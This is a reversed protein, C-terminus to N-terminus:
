ISNSDATLPLRLENIILGMDALVCKIPIPNVQTFLSKYFPLQQLYMKRAASPKDRLRWVKRVDHPKANSAVSIIGSCGVAYCPLSMTDDGSYVATHATRVVEAIQEMNGSAEKIGAIYKNRSIREITESTLNVGTRAPVNYIILPLKVINAIKRFYLVAGYQTCKNYYPASVLVGVNSCEECTEAVFKGLKIIETPNNGGIGYIIPVRENIVANTFKIIDCKEDFSLTPAEGTTGLICLADIGNVIQREILKALTDFDVKGHKFPTVLATCVGSFLKKM